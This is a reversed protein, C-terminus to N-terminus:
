IFPLTGKQKGIRAIACKDSENGTLGECVELSIRLLLRSPLCARGKSVCQYKGGKVDEM